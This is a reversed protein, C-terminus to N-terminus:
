ALIEKDVAKLNEEDLSREQSEEGIEIKELKRYRRPKGGINIIKGAEEILKLHELITSTRASDKYGLDTKKTADWYDDTTFEERLHGKLKDWIKLVFKPQRRRKIDSMNNKTPNKGPIEIPTSSSFIPESTNTKVWIQKVGLFQAMADQVVSDLDSDSVDKIIDLLESDINVTIRSKM